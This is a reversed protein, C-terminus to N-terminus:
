VRKSTPLSEVVNFIDNFTAQSFYFIEIDKHSNIGTRERVLKLIHRIYM